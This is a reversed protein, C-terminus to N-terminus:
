PQTDEGDSVELQTYSNTKSSWVTVTRPDRTSRKFRVFYKRNRPNRWAVDGYIKETCGQSLAFEQTAFMHWNHHNFQCTDLAVAKMAM